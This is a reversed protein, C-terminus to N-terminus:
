NKKNYVKLKGEKILGLMSESLIVFNMTENESVNQNQCYFDKAVLISDKSIKIREYNKMLVENNLKKKPINDLVDKINFYM